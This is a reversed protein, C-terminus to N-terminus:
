ESIEELSNKIKRTTKKKGEETPIDEVSKKLAQVAEEPEGIYEAITIVKHRELSKIADWEVIEAPYVHVGEKIQITYRPWAPNVKLRDPVHADPNTVDTYQLGPGVHITKSSQIKVYENM